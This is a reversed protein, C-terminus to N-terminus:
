QPQQAFDVPTLEFVDLKSTSQPWPIVLRWKFPGIRELVGAMDRKPYFRENEKMTYVGKLNLAKVADSKDPPLKRSVWVFTAGSNFKTELVDSPVNLVGSLLHAALAKNEGLETPIAFVSEVETSMALPRMNRDYIAGRKPTIEITRQQQRHARALYDGHEILQLFGLRAFVAGMWLTVFGAIILLRLQVRNQQM